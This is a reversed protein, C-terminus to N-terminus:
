LLAHNLSQAAQTATGLMPSSTSYVPLFAAGIASAMPGLGSIRRRFRRDMGPESRGAIADDLQRVLETPIQGGLVIEDPAITFDIVNMVRRLQDGARTVWDGIVPDGSLVRGSLESMSGVPRGAQALTRVLDLASPRAAGRPYLLGVEGANGGRGRYLRGDIMFGASFGYGVNVLVLNRVGPDSRNYFEALAAASSNNEVWTPRDFAARFVELDVGALATLVDFTEMRVPADSQFYGPVAIGVGLIRAGRLEPGAEIRAVLGACQATLGGVDAFAFPETLEDVVHGRFDIAVVEIEHLSFSIGISYAANARISIPLAPQGRHGSRREGEEVLSHALLEKVHRSLAGPTLGSLRSLETRSVNDQSRILDLITRQNPSLRYLIDVGDDPKPM